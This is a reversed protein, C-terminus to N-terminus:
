PFLITPIGSSRLVQVHCVLSWALRNKLSGLCSCDCGLLPSSCTARSVGYSEKWPVM